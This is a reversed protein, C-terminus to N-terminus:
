CKKNGQMIKVAKGGTKEIREKAKSSFSHAHIELKKKMGGEGLIKINEGKKVFGREKLLEPTVADNEKFVKEIDGLNIIEAYSKKVHTFGRKPLRRALAMQGGEFNYSLSYGKRSKHGKHGRTSTGGHGSADGRGVRKRSRTSGAPAKIQHLKM